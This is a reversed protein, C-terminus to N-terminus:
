FIRRNICIRLKILGIVDILFNGIFNFKVGLIGFYVILFLFCRICIRKFVILLVIFNEFFFFMEIVVKIAFVFDNFFERIGLKM